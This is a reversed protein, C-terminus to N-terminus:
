HNLRPTPTLAVNLGQSEAGGNQTFLCSRPDRLLEPERGVGVGWSALAEHGSLAETIPVFSVGVAGGLLM